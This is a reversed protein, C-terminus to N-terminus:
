FPEDKVSDISDCAQKFIDTFNINKDNVLNDAVKNIFVYIIEWHYNNTLNKYEPLDGDDYLEKLLEDVNSRFHEFPLKNSIIYQSFWKKKNAKTDFVGCMNSFYTDIKLCIPKVITIIDINKLDTNIKTNHKILAM